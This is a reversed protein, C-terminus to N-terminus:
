RGGGKGMSLVVPGLRKENEVRRHAEVVREMPYVRDIISRITGEELMTKLTILEEKTEGAFAFRVKKLTFMSTLIARVMDLLRPNAILYRGKRNLADICGGYSSKAVMDFIIDYAGRNQTFDVKTYDLFADAGARLLMDKKTPSDVATVEAGMSKAIQIGFPGISGGAGNILIKEGPQIRALRLFHLANLGGLPVAAAEEHSLNFPKPVLTYGDPLCVYEAHAGFRLKAAGFIQDGKKFSTANGGRSVIEGSFYGGLIQKRPKQLGMVMRLPLLFWKVPLNFSRMECDAKTVEAAHVKILVEDKKPVPRPVDKLRLVDPPGYRTYVVAKM